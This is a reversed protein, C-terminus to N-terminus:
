DYTWSDEARDQPVFGLVDRAHEIDVWRWDNNSMGYFIGFQLSEDANICLEFIQVIDRVSVFISAGRPPRPRDREVQGIRIAICSMDYRNSYTRALSECWVKSSAYLSRPKAPIDPSVKPFNAPVDEYRKELIAKYPEEETYGDSVTISSAAIIRSVGAQRCAEFANYAGIINSNLVSEWTNPSPDAALHVVVDMGQVARQLGEMDTLECLYLREEPIDLMWSKPVRTSFTASRDLAYVDYKEPQEKLRMFVANGIQGTAGTVLVKKLSM